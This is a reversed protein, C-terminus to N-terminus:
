PHRVSFKVETMFMVDVPEGDISGPKWVWKSVADLALQNLRSDDSKIVHAGRLTGGEKPVTGGITVVGSIGQERLEPPYEPEVRHIVVPAVVGPPPSSPPPYARPATTCAVLFLLLFLRKM